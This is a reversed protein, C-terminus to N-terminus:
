EQINVFMSVIEELILMQKHKDRLLGRDVSAGEILGKLNAEINPNMEKADFAYNKAGPMYFGTQPNFAYHCKILVEYLSYTDLLEESV